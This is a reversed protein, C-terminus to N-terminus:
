AELEKPRSLLSRSTLSLTVPLTAFSVVHASTPQLGHATNSMEHSIFARHLLFSNSRQRSTARWSCDEEVLLNSVFYEIIVAHPRCYASATGPRDTERVAGVRSARGPQWALWASLLSWGLREPQDMAFVAPKRIAM